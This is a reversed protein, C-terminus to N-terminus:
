NGYMLVLVTLGKEKVSGQLLDEDQLCCCCDSPLILIPAGDPFRRGASHFCTYRTPSSATIARKAVVGGSALGRSRIVEPSSIQGLKGRHRKDMQPLRPFDRSKTRRGKKRGVTTSLCIRSIRDAKWSGNM